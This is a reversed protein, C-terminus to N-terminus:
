FKEFAVVWRQDTSLCSADECNGYCTFMTVTDKWLWDGMVDTYYKSVPGSYVVKGEYLVGDNCFQGDDGVQTYILHAFPSAAYNCFRSTCGNHGVVVTNRKYETEKLISPTSTPQWQDATLKGLSIPSAYSTLKVWTGQCTSVPVPEQTTNVLTQAIPSENVAPLETIQESPDTYKPFTQPIVEGSVPQPIFSLALLSFILLFSFHKLYFPM